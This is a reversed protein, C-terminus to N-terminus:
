WSTSAAGPRGQGEGRGADLRGVPDRGTGPRHREIGQGRLEAASRVVLEGDVDGLAVSFGARGMVRAIGLGIGQAAGTVLAVPKKGADSM